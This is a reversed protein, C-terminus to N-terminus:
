YSIRYVWSVVSGSCFLYISSICTWDKNIGLSRLHALDVVWIANGIALVLIQYIRILPFIGHSNRACFYIGIIAKHFRRIATASTLNLWKILIFRKYEFIIVPQFASSNQFAWLSLSDLVLRFRKSHTLYYSSLFRILQIGFNLLNSLRDGSVIIHLLEHFIIRSMNINWRQINLIGLEEVDIWIVAKFNQIHNIWLFVRNNLIMPYISLILILSQWIFPKSGGHLPVMDIGGVGKGVWGQLVASFSLDESWGLEGKSDGFSGLVSRM